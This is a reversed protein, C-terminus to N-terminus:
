KKLSATWNQVLTLPAIEAQEVPTNVLFRKGDASVDYLNGNMVKVRAPFLVRPTEATFEDGHVSFDVAMLKFDTSLYYIHKGDRSWRPRSGGETSIQWKGRGGSLPLVYVQNKGSDSSQYAIWRMDPSFRGNTEAFPTQLFVRVKHDEFSYLMLDFDTKLNQESFLLLKGDPSWDLPVKFAADAYLVEDGGTGSSRKMILDGLGKADSGYVIMSDDRSWLPAFEDSPDFTLRTSVGRQLDQIWIDWRGTSPDVIPTALRRQDYSLTSSRYDAPKGVATQIPKGSADLWVFQSNGMGSGGEYLLTDDNSISFFADARLTRGVEEAIPVLNRELVLRKPDFKQAVLSRDRWYILHGSRSYIGNSSAATLEKNVDGDISGVLLVGTVDLAIAGRQALYVFRRGDPLFSPWRHSAYGSQPNLRTAATPVGGDESVKMLPGASAPAFVIVGEKSWSGGRPSQADCLTQAPGGTADMKKLKGASFFGIMRSDPSWFPFGGDETGSLLQATGGSLARVYLSRPGGSTPQASFVIRKGDPSIAPAGGNDFAFQTKPPPLVSSQVVHAPERKLEIIGWTLAVAALVLAANILWSLRERAKRRAAVPAAIGAQSGKSRVWKLEEAVDHASQWRDAPDKELCREIVHELAPPALPQVQSIPMPRGSVIAAILSTRTKGEFARKGTAMEYLVAGLAFIDTRPDAEMGELQEPSMYQFTGVITGEQTLAKQQTAGSFDVIPSAAKALGFDLLKAGSKTLMVNSPKLDRHIIGQRHAKDLAEAIEIGHRLVEETSMPGHTLREGVTEGELLEMVLYDYGNEHGIDYLTCINPHNLASITKAERELRLRLEVNSALEAPLIKIAVSRDLRTDRGRYVEGMGGAGLPSVVEYPGLRLGPALAM